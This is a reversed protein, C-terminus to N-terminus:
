RPRKGFLAERREKAQSALTFREAFTARAGAALRARRAPDRILTALAVYWAASANAVKEGNVGNTIADDYVGIDSAVTPLGLAAYDMAKIASKSRNFPKDLLPALGIDWRAERSFWNVFAPYSRATPPPDRRHLGEPLEDPTTGIVDISVRNGFEALLRELVPAIIAFDAGHTTTGMILLRTPAGPTIASPAPPWWLREDLGNTIVRPRTRTPGLSAALHPTSVWVEDAQRVLHTVIGALPGFRAAEPHSSPINALDDDLDYVLRSGNARCHAILADADAMAPLAHRQTIVIDANEGLASAPTAIRIDAGDAISPHGLPQLLRIYACPSLAGNALTEPVVLIRVPRKRAVTSAAAKAPSAKPPTALPRAYEAAYFDASAPRQAPHSKAAPKRLTERITAFAALWDAPTADAPLLWTLSRNVLREPFAGIRTALIPANSDLAASLTYSYTEPWQAPFWIVHPKVRAILAPLDADEYAGTATIRAAARPPLGQEPYGILHLDISGDALEAVASVAAKGKRDALVGLLAVRLPSRASLAPASVRWPGASAPEHTAVLAHAALRHRALRDRVDASPCIVRDADTFLWANDQRWTQIDSAGHAPNTALCANCDRIDPEGCYQADLFPLFNVHPCLAYYDHVTTDFPVGLASVLARLEVGFGMTHHIHVRRVNAHRLWAAIDPGRDPAVSLAPHGPMGPVSLTLGSDGPELVLINAKGGLAAMAERMHRYVGGGLGHGVMLVGPLGSARLLAATLAFRSPNAPALRAFRAVDAEYDPYRERLIGAAKTAHASQKGFSVEGQHFVFVDCALLNRWGKARARQCFDVEEGYGRGFADADFPGLAELAARRIFMCFGVTTPLDVVRGANATECAADIATLGHGPPLPGGTATPYSCITGNNSFPSVSAVNPASYAAAALRRLWGCPVETDSNLLVVDNPAAEAMGRNVSGVFGLNRRNRILTVKGAKALRELWASLRPEPSCDDVVVIRGSPRDTDALVSNICRQTEGLGRYVPIVIDVARAISQRGPPQPASPPQVPLHATIDLPRETPLGLTEGALLHYLLPNGWAEPHADVYYAADFRPHPKRLELTGHRVYHLFPLIDSNAVDPYHRRYWDGDFFRCPHRGERAGHEIYHELPDLGLNKVDPNGDLYWAADFLVSLERYLNWDIM